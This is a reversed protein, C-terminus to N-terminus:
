QALSFRFSVGYNSNTIPYSTSIYPTNMNTDYYLQMNFRNSLAYDATFKVTWIKQGSTLDSYGEQIKRIISVNDRLSFDARLNLDNNVSKQKGGRGLILPLKDFRYGLGIVLEDNYNEILQNNGMSLSINRSKKVEMRTTLSNVWTINFGILPSLQDSITVANIDYDYRGVTGREGQPLSIFSGVNYTSRYAHSIDFSKMINKFIEIKSLGDYNVRWNPLMSTWDPMPNDYKKLDNSGSYASLLAPIMTEQTNEDGKAKKNKMFQDFTDSAFNGSKEVKDFATSIMNFSMSFNGQEVNGTREYYEIVNGIKYTYYERINLSRTWEGSLDIRLGRIPELTVKLSLNDKSTMVYPNSIASQTLWGKKGANEAYDRDQWGLVFPVGPASFGQDTGMFKSDPMYGPLVTGENRSFNVSANKLSTAMLMSYDLALKLPSNNEEREGTISVRGGESSAKPIFEVANKSLVNTTGQIPRGNQDFARLNVKETRLKHNITLAKGEEFNVERKDFKVKKASSSKTNRSSKSRYKKDLEKLYSSKRYLSTFNLQGNAQIANLNNITNGPAFAKEGNDKQEQTLPRLEPAVKWQYTARYSVNASTWDLMPLKDIPVKYSVDVNHQYTTVRGFDMIRARISDGWYDYDKNAIGDPERIDSNTVSRFSLKLSKTLNYKLDFYRNWDFDKSVTPEPDPAGAIDYPKRLKIENYMRDLEWRYSIQSPMYYFNFDRILALSKPKVKKFPEVAKPRANYNYGLAGKYNKDYSHETKADYKETSNFAYTASLNSPDYFQVKENKPKLKVNTFNISKRRVISQSLEKIEDREEADEAENLAVELPVDPDLAYYKPTAVSQSYSVYMPVSLPSEPGTFKGLELNSSIDYQYFDEQSREQVNQDISGWGVTSTKGAVSVNGLDALKVSMRANAAWGGEEDFDTLRLENMWIEASKLEKGGNGRVGIMITRVNGLSPNGKITVYNSPHDRDVYTKRENLDAKDRNRRLKMQHFLDLPIDLDNAAPWVTRRDAESDNNYDLARHPTLKLPIEYEYYNDVYDSGLRIFAIMDDDFLQNEQNALAAAHIFMKLRKYQRMDMNSTKYVAKSEGDALNQVKLLISQENLERLQPNAPDVVRDIGPPLVYNVPKKGSNEEINVASVEFQPNSSVVTKDDDFERDFRRWDGKILDLTAMRLVIEKKFGKMVMRMFRISRFDSIGNVANYESDLRIPIRFLYWDATNGAADKETGKRKDIVYKQTGDRLATMSIPVKYQFYAESENLTYDGNIDEVDPRSKSSASYGSEGDKADPLSNGDPGNFRKYRELIGTQANDFDTGRFYHFDDTAPDNELATYPDSDVITQIRALFDKHLKKENDSSLGDFGVDQAFRINEDPSFGDSIVDKNSVAGWQTFDINLSKPPNSIDIADVDLDGPLGNEFSKRSDRLIDESVNGLHFYLTGPNDETAYVYPDMMWFEIYEINAAEFDPVDIKRMMGGWRTEPNTLTGDSNVGASYATAEADFNYPGREQPYFALNLVPINSPQGYPQQREPFLEKEYIERVLHNKTEADADDGKLHDPTRSDDRVFLPDISYWALLARNVGSAIGTSDGAPFRDTPDPQTGSLGQPTSALQWATWNRMDYSIRTGEFDDIYATGSEEIVDPHGPLIQAFEGDFTISSKEKTQVFPLWDLAETIANSETFFSTNMGWVTNSIPEDGMSVKQTLPRESLHMVTAGVNFNENIAYDLHTGVLTKTQLNFLSQNELSVQIPTGSSLLGQNLIRVRGLMYDVTYDVNEVLKQGGATVVVSGQPVNMANLSIESGSSSKYRGKLKYKNKSADKEAEVQSNDYLSQFVYKEYNGDGEKFGCREALNRGFPELVPFIIRGNETRITVDPVFDFVGDPNYDNQSNLNDLNLLRLFLEGKVGENGDPMYNIDGGLKEDRYTVNLIFDEPNVQYANISYINKMMLNWAEPVAPNLNTSKLLKLVLTQTPDNGERNSFEGVTKTEGTKIVTYEYAIALVEDANLSSSLSIYGLTPHVSYETEKLLRANELKEYDVTNKFDNIPRLTETVNNIDRIGSYPSVTMKEYLTNADNSPPVVSEGDWLLDNHMFEVGSEGLDLFAVVNRAADIDRRKNTVWVEVRTINIKSSIVPLQKLADEYDDRFQQSLFFHRNKDYEHGQIEFESTSAGGEINLVKSEGRQQSFVSTVNLKGFQMETKVGFLSQSGTILTGPLPMTVNGAEVNRLIDDEGGEYEINVQNEFDFTAETNYNIGLTLREGITGSVNMQIKEQFDFTTTSRLREQLTPNDIKTHQVGVKLEAMGQLKVNIENSGFITEFAKGGVKFSPNLLSFGKEAYPAQEKQKQRWYSTVSRRNEHDMYEELSMTYPMRVDMNGVKKYLTVNGTKYDYRPTYELNGPTQLDLGRQEEKELLPNGSDDKIKYQLEVRPTVELCDPEQYYEETLEATLGADIFPSASVALLLLCSTFVIAISNKLNSKLLSM